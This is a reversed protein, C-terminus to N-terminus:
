GAGARTTPGRQTGCPERSCRTGRHVGIRAANSCYVAPKFVSISSSANRAIRCALRAAAYWACRRNQSATMSQQTDCRSLIPARARRLRAGGNRAPAVPPRARAVQRRQRRGHTGLARRLKGLRPALRLLPAADVVVRHEAGGPSRRPSLAARFSADAARARCLTARCGRRRRRSRRTSAPVDVTGATEAVGGHAPLVVRGGRGGRTPSLQSWRYRTITMNSLHARTKHNLM